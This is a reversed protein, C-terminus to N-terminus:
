MSSRRFMRNLLHRKVLRHEQKVEAYDAAGLAAARAASEATLHSYVKSITEDCVLGVMKQNRQVNLVLNRSMTHTKNGDPDLHCELGRLCIDPSIQEQKQYWSNSKRLMHILHKAEEKSRLYDLDTTWLADPQEALSKAPEVERIDDHDTFSISTRRKVITNDRLKVEVEGTYSISARRPRGSTKLSSRRPARHTNAAAPSAEEYGYSALVEEYGYETDDKQDCDLYTDDNNNNEM